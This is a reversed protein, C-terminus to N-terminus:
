MPDRPMGFLYPVFLWCFFIFFPKSFKLGLGQKRLRRKTGPAPTSGARGYHGSSKLDLADVLEAVQALEHAHTLTRTNFLRFTPLVMWALKKSRSVPSSGAVGVKALDHEVM